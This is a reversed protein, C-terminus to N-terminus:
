QQPYAKTTTLSNFMNTHSLYCYFSVVCLDCCSKIKMLNAIDITYLTYEGKTPLGLQRYVYLVPMTKMGTIMVSQEGSERMAFSWEEASTTM